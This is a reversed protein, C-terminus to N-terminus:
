MTVKKRLFERDHERLPDVIQGYYMRIQDPHILETEHKM